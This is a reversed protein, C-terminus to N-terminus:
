SIDTIDRTFVNELDEETILQNCITCIIEDATTDYQIYSYCHPCILDDTEKM